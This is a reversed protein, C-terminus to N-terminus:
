NQDPSPLMVIKKKQGLPSRAYNGGPEIQTPPPPPTLQKPRWTVVAMAMCTSYQDVPMM